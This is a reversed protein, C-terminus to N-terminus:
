GGRIITQDVITMMSILNFHTIPGNAFFAINMLLIGLLAIGRISNIIQIRENAIVPATTEHAM